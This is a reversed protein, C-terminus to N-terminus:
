SRNSAEFNSVEDPGLDLRPLDLFSIGTFPLVGGISSAM